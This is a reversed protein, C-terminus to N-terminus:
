RAERRWVHDRKCHRRPALHRCGDSDRTFSATHPPRSASGFICCHDVRWFGGVIVLVSKGHLDHTMLLKSIQGGANCMLPVKVLSARPDELVPPLERLEEVDNLELRGVLGRAHASCARCSCPCRRDVESTPQLCSM